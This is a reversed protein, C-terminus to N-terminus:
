PVVELTQGSVPIRVGAAELFRDLLRAVELDDAASRRIQEIRAWVGDREEPAAAHLEALLPLTRGVALRAAMRSLLAERFVPDDLGQLAAMREPNELAQRLRAGSARRSQRANQIFDGLADPM